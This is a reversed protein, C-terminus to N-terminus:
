YAMSYKDSISWPPTFFVMILGVTNAAMDQIGSLLGRRTWKTLSRSVNRSSSLTSVRGITRQLKRGPTRTRGNDYFEWSTSRELRRSTRGCRMRTRLRLWRGRLVILKLVLELYHRFLFVGSIGEVEERLTGNVVGEILAYAGRYYSQTLDIWSQDHDLKYIIPKYEWKEFATYGFDSMSEPKEEEKEGDVM